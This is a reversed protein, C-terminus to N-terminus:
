EHARRAENARNEAVARVVGGSLGASGAAFPAGMLVVTRGGGRWTAMGFGLSEGNAAGQAALEEGAAGIWVCGADIGGRDAKPAAVAWGGPLLAVHFGCLEGQGIGASAPADVFARVFRRSEAPDIDIPETSADLESMPLEILYARGSDDPARAIGSAGVALRLVGDELAGDLSYGFWDTWRAGTITRRVRLTEDLLVVHGRMGGAETGLAAGVAILTRGDRADTAPAITTGFGRVADPAAIREERPAVTFFDRGGRLVLLGGARDPGRNPEGAIVDSCGDGDLDHGAFRRFPGKHVDAARVVLAHNALDTRGPQAFAASGRVVVLSDIVGGPQALFSGLDPTGDGDVDGVPSTATGFRGHARPGSLVHPAPPEDGAIARGNYIFVEGATELWVRRSRNPAKPAAVAVEDLGDGDLDGIVAIWEGFEIGPYDGELITRPMAPRTLAFLLGAAAVAAIVVAMIVRRWRDVRAPMRGDAADRLRAAFDRCDRFRASPDTALARDLVAAIAPPLTRAVALAPRAAQTRACAIQEAVSPRVAHPTEGTLMLYATAALSWQDSAATCPEGRAQEPSMFEPTGVISAHMSAGGIRSALGLDIISVGGDSRRVLINSPKIDRHAYGADHMTALAEASRAIIEVIEERSRVREFEVLDMGEILETAIWPHGDAIGSDVVRPLFPLRLSALAELESWYQRPFGRASYRLVKLAVRPAPANAGIAEAVWTAGQGGSGAHGVIRYGDIEPPASEPAGEPADILTRFLRAAAAGDPPLQPAPQDPDSHM